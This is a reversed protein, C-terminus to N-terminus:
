LDCAPPSRSSLHALLSNGGSELDPGSGRFFGLRTASELRRKENAAMRHDVASPTRGVDDM